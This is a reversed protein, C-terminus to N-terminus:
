QACAAGKLNALKVLNFSKSGDEGSLTASGSNCNDFRIQLTGWNRIGSNGDTPASTFTGGNGAYGTYVPITYTQGPVVAEVSLADSLLWHTNGNAGSKYGYYYALLQNNTTNIVNFGLGSETTDYWTGSINFFPNNTVADGCEAGKVNALKIMEFSKTGDEGVLTATAANCGTFTLEVNGWETLGSRDTTPASDFRGGNGVFGTYVPLTYTKGQEIQSVALADTLLWLADGTTNGNTNGDANEYGYFYAVLQDNATQIM